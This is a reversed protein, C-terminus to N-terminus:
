LHDLGEVVIVQLQTQVGVPSVGPEGLEPLVSELTAERAMWLLVLVVFFDTRTPLLLSM